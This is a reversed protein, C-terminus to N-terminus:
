SLQKRFQRTSITLLTIAFLVLALAHMWLAELGVGKLLLGRM